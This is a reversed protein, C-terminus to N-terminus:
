KLEVGQRITKKAWEDLQRQKEAIVKDIGAARLAANFKPLNVGPDLAGNELGSQFQRVVNTIAALETKVPSPNYTFGLAASKKSERNYQDMKEWLDPNDTVWTYSLLQNGFMWGQRMNYGSNTANVGPPFDIQKEGVKVYHKGEIGWDILNILDRDSNLLNLFMM